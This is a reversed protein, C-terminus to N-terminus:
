VNSLLDSCNNLICKYDKNNVEEFLKDKKSMNAIYKNNSYDYDVVEFFFNHMKKFVDIDNKEGLVLVAQIMNFYTLYILYTIEDRYNGYENIRKFENVLERM